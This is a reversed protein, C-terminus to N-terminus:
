DSVNLDYTIMQGSRELEIVFRTDTKLTEWMKMLKETSDIPQGNIRKVIDGSRAGMSYLINFPAVSFLKFGEIKGGVRYPGARVGNLANDLNNLVKQQIESKSISKVIRNPSSQQSLQPGSSSSSSKDKAFMDIIEVKGDKKLFVKANEIKVLKFGYVDMGIKYIQASSESQKKILARAIGPPGSITGLVVLENIESSISAAGSSDVTAVKFFNSDLMSQYENFSKLSTTAPKYRAHIYNKFDAPKIFYKISQNIVQATIFSFLIVSIINIVQIHIRTM